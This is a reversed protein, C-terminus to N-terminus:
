TEQRISSCQSVTILFSKINKWGKIIIAKTAAALVAASVPDFQPAPAPAAELLCVCAALSLLVQCM